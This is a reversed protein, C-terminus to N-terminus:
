GLLVVPKDKTKQARQFGEFIFSVDDFRVEELQWGMSFWFHVISARKQLDIKPVICLLNSLKSESATMLIEQLVTSRKETMIHFVRYPNRSAKGVSATGMSYLMGQHSSQSILDIGSYEFLAINPSSLLKPLQMILARCEKWNIYGTEALVALLSPIAKPSSLVIRDRPSAGSGEFELNLEHNYLTSFLAIFSFDIDRSYDGFMEFVKRQIKETRSKLENKIEQRTGKLV